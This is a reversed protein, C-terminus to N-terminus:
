QAAEWKEATELLWDIRRQFCEKQVWDIAARPAPEREIKKQVSVLLGILYTPSAGAGLAQLLLRDNEDMSHRIEINLKEASATDMTEASTDLNSVQGRVAGATSPSCGVRRAIARDSDDPRREIEARILERRQERNLHRRAANLTVALDWADVDDAVKRVETPYDIGLEDAARRRHHGDILRGHQDVVVPVLVGRRAIDDRLATYEDATLPPMPQFGTPADEARFQTETMM